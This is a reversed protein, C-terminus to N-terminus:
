SHFYSAIHTTDYPSGLKYDFAKLPIGSIVHAKDLTVIGEEKNLKLLPETKKAPNSITLKKYPAAKEYAIHLDM